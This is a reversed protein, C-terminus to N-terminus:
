LSISNLVLVAEDDSISDDLLDFVIKEKELSSDNLYKNNFYAPLIKKTMNKIYSWIEVQIEMNRSKMFYLPEYCFSHLFYLDKEDEHGYSAECQDMFERLKLQVMLHDTITAPNSMYEISTGTPNARYYYLVKDIVVIKNVYYKLPYTFLPEEYACGEAFRVGSKTILERKYIKQTCSENLIASNLLYNKRNEQYDYVKVVYDDDESAKLKELSADDMFMGYRFQVIDYESNETIRRFTNFMNKSVLDDGDIFVIYEGSAYSLAINRARGQRGNDELIILCIVEPYEEEYRKLINVTNDTSADDVALIEIDDDRSVQNLISDLCGEIYKEVNYCPIIISFKKMFLGSDERFGYAWVRM